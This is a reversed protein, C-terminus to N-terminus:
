GVHRYLLQGSLKLLPLPMRKFFPYSPEIQDKRQIFRKDRTKYRFYRLKKEIGGWGRKFQLLGINRPETRGFHFCSFGEKVSRKIAHWMILNNARLHQFAMDSAGYKYFVIGNFLLFVASAIAYGDHVATMVFGNGPSIIHEHVNKFFRIPQPPLGYRRRTICNLRYFVKLAKMSKSAQLVVENKTAKFINRRTSQRFRNLLESETANLDITHFKFAASSSVSQCITNDGRLEVHKWGTKDAHDTVVDWLMQVSESDGLPHCEDTFPLSVGRRGTILSEVGM